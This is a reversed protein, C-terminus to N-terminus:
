KSQNTSETEDRGVSENGSHSSGATLDLVRLAPCHALLEKVYRRMYTSICLLNQFRNDCKLKLRQFASVLCAKLEPKALILRCRGVKVDGDADSDPQLRVHELSPHEWKWPRGV